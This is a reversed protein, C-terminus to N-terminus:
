QRGEEVAASGPTSSSEARELYAFVVETLTVAAGLADGHPPSGVEVITGKGKRAVPEIGPRDPPAAADPLYRHGSLIATTRGALQVGGRHLVVIHDCVREVDELLHSSLIATTGLERVLGVLGEMFSQRALPDLAAAPEDLILLQPRKAAAMALALQARQGGSLGGAKQRPDLDLRTLRREAVQQDWQPNLRRGLELHEQVTLAGYVPAEQAVFGVKALHSANRGPRHGMVRLRGSTPPILGCAIQLLTSKGAGNPGVLGVVAGTPVALDCNLLATRRGYRKTLRSAELAHPPSSTPM